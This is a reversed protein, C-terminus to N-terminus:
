GTPSDSSTTESSNKRGDELNDGIGVGNFDRVKGIFETTFAPHKRKWWDSLVDDDSLVRKGGDGDVWCFAVMLAGLNGSREPIPRGREDSLSNVLELYEGGFMTRIWATVPETSKRPNPAPLTIEKYCREARDNVLDDRTLQAM